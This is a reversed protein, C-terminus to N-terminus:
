NERKIYKQMSILCVSSGIFFPTLLLIKNDMYKNINSPPFEENFKNVDRSVFFSDLFPGMFTGFSFIILGIQFVKLSRSKWMSIIM